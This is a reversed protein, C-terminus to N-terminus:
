SRTAINKLVEFKSSVLSTLTQYRIGTEAMQSLELDISVNNGDERESGGVRQQVQTLGVGTTTNLNMHKNDTRKVALDSQNQRLARQLTSEFDVDQAKYGPTDVNALNQGIITQRRMLGDLATRAALFANDVSFLDM